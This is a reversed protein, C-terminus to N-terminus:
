IDTRFFGDKERKPTKQLNKGLYSRVFFTKQMFNLYNRHIQKSAVKIMERVRYSPCM